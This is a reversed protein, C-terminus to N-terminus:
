QLPSLDTGLIFSLIMNNTVWEIPALDDTYVRGGSPAPQLNSFTVQMAQVLLPHTEPHRSLSILNGALNEGSIQNRSAYLVSNFTNPVDMVYIYPLVTGITAALDNILSRDDPTRGINIALVGNEDLKDATIQFFERTTLQPPIYPPRYADVSILTYKHESHELGWRGDTVYVNLNTMTMEFYDRGAQVIKEDIEYGDIPVPGFVATAQRATTGAALGIIAIRKVDEPRFDKNFFPGVLFQEWPGGYFLETPHYESHVGQGDNLRLYRTEGVQVVEIYNYDSETEFVQGPTERGRFEVFVALLSLLAIMALPLALRKWQKLLAFGIISLVIPMYGLLLVTRSAGIVPFLLLTPLFAGVVSGVTSIASVTGAVHGAKAADEILLRVVFPSTMALLTIPVSFLVLTSLFAGAMIGFNLQDSARAAALLVPQSVFAVLGLLFGGWALIDFLREPRPDQDALRGGLWYGLAFYVLILGIIVAWVLNISSFKMQLLRSAGFEAALAVMGALFVTFYLFKKMSTKEIFTPHTMKVSAAGFVAQWAM